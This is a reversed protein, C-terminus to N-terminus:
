PRSARPSRHNRPTRPPGSITIRLGSSTTAVTVELRQVDQSSTIGLDTLWGRDALRFIADRLAVAYGEPTLIPVAETLDQMDAVHRAMELVGHLIATRDTV